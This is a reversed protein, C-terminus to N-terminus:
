RNELRWAENRLTQASIDRDKWIGFIAKFEKHSSDRQPEQIDIISLEEFLRLVIKAKKEDKVRITKEM